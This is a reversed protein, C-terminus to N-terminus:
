CDVYMSIIYQKEFLVRDMLILFNRRFFPSKVNTMENLIVYLIIVLVSM